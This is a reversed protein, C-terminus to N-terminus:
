AFHLCPRQSPIYVQEALQARLQENEARLQAAVERPAASAGGGIERKLDTLEEDHAHLHQAEVAAEELAVYKKTREVLFALCEQM